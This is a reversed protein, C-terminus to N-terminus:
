DVSFFESKQLDAIVVGSLILSVLVTLFMAFNLITTGKTGLKAQRNSAVPAPLEGAPVPSAVRVPAAEAVAVVSDNNKESM